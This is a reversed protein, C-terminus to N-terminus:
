MKSIEKERIMSPIGADEATSERSLSCSPTGTYLFMNGDYTINKFVIGKRDEMFSSIWCDHRNKEFLNDKILIHNFNEGYDEGNWGCETTIGEDYSEHIYNNIIQMGGDGSPGVNIGGGAGGARKGDSYFAFNAGGFYALECNQVIGSGIVGCNGYYRFCLNDIVNNKALQVLAVETNIPAIEISTYIKGPNGEDCRLYLKGTKTCDYVILNSDVYHNWGTLDVDNFYELDQLDNRNFKENTGDKVYNKGNWYVWKKQAFGKGENFVMYGCFPMDKYYVWINKSGDVLDM